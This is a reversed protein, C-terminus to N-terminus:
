FLFRGAIGAYFIDYHDLSVGSGFANKDTPTLYMLRPM